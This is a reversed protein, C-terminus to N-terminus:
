VTCGIVSCTSHARWGARAMGPGAEPKKARSKASSAQMTQWACALATRQKPWPRAMAKDNVHEDVMQWRFKWGWILFRALAGMESKISLEESSQRKSSESSEGRM